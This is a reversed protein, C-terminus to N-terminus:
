HCFYKKKSNGYFGFDIFFPEKVLNKQPLKTYLTSFDFSSILKANQKTNIQDLKDIVPKSNEVVWFKKYNSYFDPKEHFSQIQKFILKFPIILKTAATSM